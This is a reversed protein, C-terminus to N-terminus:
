AFSAQCTVHKIRTRKSADRRKRQNSRLVLSRDPSSSPSVAYVSIINRLELKICVHVQFEISFLLNLSVLEDTTLSTIRWEWTFLGQNSDQKLTTKEQRVRRLIIVDEHLASRTVLCSRRRFGVLSHLSSQVWRAIFLYRKHRALTSSISSLRHGRVQSVKPTGSIYIYIYVPFLHCAYLQM